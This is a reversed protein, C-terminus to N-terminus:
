SVASRSKLHEQVARVWTDAYSELPPCVIDTGALLRRTNRDDYRAPTALQQLFAGPESMLRQVVPNKMVIRAAQTPLYRRSTTRRGGAHAILDFVMGTTLAGGSVLHFTRGPADPHCGIHHAAKVVYDIPVIDLPHDTSPLPLRMSGPLGLALMVLLYPGAVRELDGTISDGVLITPRVVAIPVEDMARRIALEARFRTEQVVGHFGQGRDLEDEYVTGTRDGSVHATSHHVICRLRSAARGLEVMEVAGNVNTKEATSRDVGVFSVSAMHHVRTVRDALACYEPGSLGLDLAAVDGELISIRARERGLGEVIEAAAALRRELVVLVIETDPETALIHELMRRPGLSPFGTILVVEREM